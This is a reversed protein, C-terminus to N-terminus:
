CFSLPEGEFDEVSFDVVDTLVADEGLHEAALQAAKAEVGTLARDETTLETEDAASATAAAPEATPAPTGPEGPDDPAAVNGCGTLLLCLACVLAAARVPLSYKKM